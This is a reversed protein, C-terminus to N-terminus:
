GMLSESRTFCAECSPSSKPNRLIARFEEELHICDCGLCLDLTCYVYDKKGEELKKMNSITWPVSLWKHGSNTLHTFSRTLYRRLKSLNGREVIVAYEAMFILNQTHVEQMNKKYDMIIAALLLNLMGLSSITIMM